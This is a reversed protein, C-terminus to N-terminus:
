GGTIPPFIAVEDGATLKHDKQCLKHNVAFCLQDRHSALLTRWAESQAGLANLLDDISPAPKDGSASSEAVSPLACVQEGAGIAERVWAFTKLELTETM